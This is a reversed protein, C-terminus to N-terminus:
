SSYETLFRCQLGIQKVIGSQREIASNLKPHSGFPGEVETGVQVGPGDVVAAPLVPQNLGFGAVPETLRPRAVEKTRMQESALVVPSVQIQRKFKQTRIEIFEFIVTVLAPHAACTDCVAIRPNDVAVPVDLGFYTQAPHVCAAIHKLTAVASLFHLGAVTM